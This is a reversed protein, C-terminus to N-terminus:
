RMRHVPRHRLYWAGAVLAMAALALGLYLEYGSWPRLQPLQAAPVPSPVAREGARYAGLSSIRSSDSPVAEIMAGTADYVIPLPRGPVIALSLSQNGAYLGPQLAALMTVTADYVIPLSRGPAVPLSLSQSGNYLGPRLAAQMAATADYVIPLSAQESTQPAAPILLSVSQHGVNLGPNLAAQMAGTADYVLPLALPKDAQPAIATLMAGTSDYVLIPAPTPAASQGSVAIAPLLLALVAFLTLTVTSRKM